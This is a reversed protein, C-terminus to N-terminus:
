LMWKDSTPCTLYIHAVVSPKDPAGLTVSLDSAGCTSSVGVSSSTKRGTAEELLEILRKAISWGQDILNGSVVVAVRFSEPDEAEREVMWDVLPGTVADPM